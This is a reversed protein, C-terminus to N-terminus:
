RLRVVRRVCTIGLAQLRAFYLGPEVDEGAENRGDWYQAFEGATRLGTVLRRVRRGNADFIVLEVPSERPAMLRFSVGVHFPSPRGASLMVESGSNPAPASVTGLQGSLSVRQAYIDFDQGNRWDQWAVIVGGIGAMVCGPLDQSFAATGIPFGDAPWGQGIVGSAMVRTAYIHSDGSRSDSWAVFAGGDGDAALTLDHQFGPAIALSLGNAPWAADIVGSILVRQAFVDPFDSREDEWVILAGGSEDVVCRPRLQRGSEDCVALGDMPWSPDVVGGSLIHQAYIDMNAAGSRSDQWAAIAGGAGDSVLVAYEEFGNAACVPTGNAPWGPALAGSALVRQAYINSNSSRSDMWIVIAGGAGDEAIAPSGRYGVTACLAKGNPPWDPHAVGTSQLRQAYIAPDARHDQWAILAGGALDSVLVPMNQHSNAACVAYGGPPFSPDRAGSNLVHQAFVDTDLGNRVDSWVVFAGGAGDGIMAPWMQEISTDCVARGEPPWRADIEGTALVHQLRIELHTGSRADLWLIIAGGDGDGVVHVEGQDGPAACVSVNVSADNPWFALAASAQATCAVLLLLGTFGALNHSRM